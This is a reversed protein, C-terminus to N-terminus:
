IDRIYLRYVCRPRCAATKCMSFFVRLFSGQPAQPAAPASLLSICVVFFLLIIIIIIIFELGLCFFTGIEEIMFM